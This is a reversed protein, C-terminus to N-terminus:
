GLGRTTSTGHRRCGRARVRSQAVTRRSCGVVGLQGAGQGPAERGAGAHPLPMLPDRKRGMRRREGQRALM